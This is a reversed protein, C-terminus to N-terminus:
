KLIEPKEIKTSTVSELLECTKNFRTIVSSKKKTSVGISEM